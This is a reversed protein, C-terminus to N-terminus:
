LDPFPHKNTYQVGFILFNVELANPFEDRSSFNNIEISVVYKGEPVTEGTLLVYLKIEFM